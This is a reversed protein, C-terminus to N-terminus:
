NNSQKLESDEAIRLVLEGPEFHGDHLAEGASLKGVKRLIDELEEIDLRLDKDTESM